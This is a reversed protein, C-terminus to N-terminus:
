RFCSQLYPLVRAKLDANYNNDAVCYLKLSETTSNINMISIKFAYITYLIM